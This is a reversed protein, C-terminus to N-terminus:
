AAAAQSSVLVLEGIDLILAVRGDGLITAGAIGSIRKYNAELNKIVVQQQGVLEDVLLVTRRGGSEVVVLIGDAPNSAWPRGGFLDGLPVIPVFEGRVRAVHASGTLRRIETAGPQLSEVVSHLPVIYTERGVAVSMGDLIALTLPLRIAVRTGRGAVSTVEVQGNLSQINQRVVDMGVGRGSVDSVAAATSFGPAFILQCVEADSMDNGLPLGRERAKALIRDRDLGRGDDQIVIVIHGGEHSATLTLTGTEPKGAARRAEPGELGHDLSNRVIHNLPDTLKEIVGRDLETGEGVTELTVQKGLKNALDHVLRPLRSFLFDVPVMRTAMVAEQLRRTNLHLQSLGNLMVEDRVPDLGSGQQQLMEQTIVLEGVLNMLADIKDVSVRLSRQEPAPRPRTTPAAAAPSAPEASSSDAAPAVQPEIPEVTLRCEDEVWAFVDRVEAESVDGELRLRWSLYCREPDIDELDPLRDIDAQVDLEGLSALERLLRLPENGSAFIEADPEFGIRWGRPSAADQAPEVAPGPAATAGGQWHNLKEHAAAVAAADIDADGRAAALLGRTIDVAELLTSVLDDSPPLEGARVRDLLTELSHTFDTIASFGFTGAGGKISHAARFIENLTETDTQKVDLELLRSEMLDLGERSEEFFTDQFRSIDIGM